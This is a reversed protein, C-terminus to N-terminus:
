SCSACLVLASSWGTAELLEPLYRGGLIEVFELGKAFVSNYHSTSLFNGTKAEFFVGTTVHVCFHELYGSHLLNSTGPFRVPWRDGPETM